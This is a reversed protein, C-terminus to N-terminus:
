GSVSRQQIGLRGAPLGEGEELPRQGYAVPQDRTNVWQDTHRSGDSGEIVEFRDSSADEEVEENAYSRWQSPLCATRASLFLPLPIM